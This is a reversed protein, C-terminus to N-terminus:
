APVPPARSPLCNRYLACLPFGQLGPLLHAAVPFSTPAAHVDNFLTISQTTCLACDHGAETDEDHLHGAAAVGVGLLLLASFLAIIRLFSALAM